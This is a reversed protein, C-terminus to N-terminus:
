DRLQGCGSGPNINRSDGHLSSASSAALASCLARESFDSGRFKHATECPSSPSPSLLHFAQVVLLAIYTTQPTM